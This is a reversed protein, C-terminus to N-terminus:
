RVSETRLILASVNKHLPAFIKTINALGEAEDQQLSQLANKRLRAPVKRHNQTWDTPVVKIVGELFDAFENSGDLIATALEQLEDTQHQEARM